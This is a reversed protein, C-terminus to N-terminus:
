QVTGQLFSKSVWQVALRWPTWYLFLVRHLLNARVPNLLNFFLFPVQSTLMLLLFFIDSTVEVKYAFLDSYFPFPM